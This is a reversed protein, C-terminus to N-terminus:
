KLVKKGNVIYLGKVAKEVRQGQLNYVEGQQQMANVNSIGTTTNDFVIALRGEAASEEDAPAEIKLYAKGAPITAGTTSLVQFEAEDADNYSLVYLYDSTELVTEKLCGVLLNDEIADGAEAIPITIEGEGVLVLGTCPAVTGEAKTLTVSSENVASAYYADIGTVDLAYPSAFTAYGYATVTATTETPAEGTKRVIVYDLGINSNWDPDPNALAISASTPVEIDPFTSLTNAANAVTFKKDTDVFTGDALRIWINLSAESSGQNRGSVELTYVGAELPATWVQSNKNLRQWDGGSAREPVQGQAAFSRSKNLQYEEAYYSITEDLTFTVNIDEDGYAMNRGYNVNNGNAAPVAYYQGNYEVVRTYFVPAAANGEVREASFTKLINNDADVANLNVIGTLAKRMEVNLVNEGAALVLETTAEDTAFYKVGDITLEKDATITSGVIAEGEVSKITEGEFVYNITYAAVDASEDAVTTISLNDIMIANGGANTGIYFDIQSCTQAASNAYNVDSATALVAGDKDIITYELKKNIVDVNIKAHCWADLGALDNQTGNISFKNTGGGRWCGLHFVSGNWGYGTNSKGTFGGNSGTHLSADALSILAHGAVNVIYFDYEVNVNTTAATVLESFDYYAFAVANMNGSTAKLVKSGLTADDVISLGIRNTDYIAFPHTADEFDYTTTTEGAWANAGVCLAAAVLLSKLLQKKRM